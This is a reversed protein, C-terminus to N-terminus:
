GKEQLAALTKSAVREVLRPHLGPNTRLIERAIDERTVKSASRRSARRPFNPLYQDTYSHYHELSCEWRGLSGAADVSAISVQERDGDAILARRGDETFGLIWVNRGEDQLATVTQGIPTDYLDATKAVSAKFERGEWVETPKGCNLCYPETNNETDGAVAMSAYERNCELSCFPKYITAGGAQKRAGTCPHGYFSEYSGLNDVGRGAPDTQYVTVSGNFNNRLLFLSQMGTANTAAFARVAADLVDGGGTEMDRSTVPLPQWKGDAVWAVEYDVSAMKRAATTVVTIDDPNALLSAVQDAEDPDVTVEVVDGFPGAPTSSSWGFRVADRVASDIANRTDALPGTVQVRFSVGRRGDDAVKRAATTVVTIDDPNVTTSGGLGKLEDGVSRRVIYSTPDPLDGFYNGGAIVGQFPESGFVDTKCQVVTGTPIVAATRAAEAPRAVQMAEPTTDLDIDTSGCKCRLAHTGSAAKALGDPSVAGRNGCAMCIIPYFARDM